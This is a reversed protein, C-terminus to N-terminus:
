PYFHSSALHYPLSYNKIRACELCYFVTYFVGSRSVVLFRSLAVRKGRMDGILLLKYFIFIRYLTYLPIYAIYPLAFAGCPTRPIPSIKAPLKSPKIKVLLFSTLVWKRTLLNYVFFITLFQGTKGRDELTDSFGLSNLPRYSFM